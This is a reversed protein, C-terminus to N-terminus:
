YQCASWQVKKLPLSFPIKTGLHWREFGSKVVDKSFTLMKIENLYILWLTRFDTTNLSLTNKKRYENQIASIRQIHRCEEPILHSSLIRRRWQHWDVELRYGLLILINSALICKWQGQINHIEVGKYFLSTLITLECRTHQGIHIELFSHKFNFQWQRQGQFKTPRCHSGHLTKKGGRDRYQASNQSCPM